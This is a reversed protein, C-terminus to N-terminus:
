ILEDPSLWYVKVREGLDEAGADKGRNSTDQVLLAGIGFNYPELLDCGLVLPVSQLLVEKTTNDSLDLTWVGSRDNFRTEFLFKRDGLQSVFGRNPTSDFPIEAIM